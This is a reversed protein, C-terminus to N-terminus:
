DTGLKRMVPKGARYRRPSVGFRRKFERSLHFESSFGLDAAIHALTDHTTSLRSQVMGLRLRDYYKKPSLGTLARFVQRFRRESQCAEHALASVPLGAPNAQMLKIAREIAEQHPNAPDGRTQWTYIWRSLLLGAQWSALRNAAPHNKQLLAFCEEMRVSEDAAIPVTLATQVPAERSQPLVCEFWWFHWRTGACLYREIAAHNFVMLTGASAAIRRNDRFRLEGEGDITRLVITEHPDRGAARVDYARDADVRWIARLCFPGIAIPSVAKANQNLM